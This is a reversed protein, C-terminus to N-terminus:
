GAPCQTDGSIRGGIRAATDDARINMNLRLAVEKLVCDGALHGYRDNITKFGDLDLFLVGAKCGQRKAQFLAMELRDEGLRLSPLGTLQDYFALDRIEQEREEAKKILRLLAIASLVSILMFSGALVLTKYLERQWDALYEDCALGVIAYVPAQELRRM